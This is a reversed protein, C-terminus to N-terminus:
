RHVSGNTLLYFGLLAMGQVLELGPHDLQIRHDLGLSRARAYYVLHSELIRRAEPVPFEPQDFGSVTLWKSAVAWMINALALWHRQPWTLPAGGSKRDFVQRLTDLFPNREVFRFPGQVAQFYAETLVLAAHWNPLQEPDLCDEDVALLDQDDVYYGINATTIAQINIDLIGIGPECLSPFGVLYVRIRQMWSVDSMKGVYGPLGIGQDLDVSSSLERQRDLSDVNSGVLSERRSTTSGNMAVPIDDTAHLSRSSSRSGKYSSRRSGPQSPEIQREYM